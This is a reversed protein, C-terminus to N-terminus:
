RARTRAKPASPYAYTKTTMAANSATTIARPQRIALSPPAPACAKAFSAIEAATRHTATSLDIQTRM